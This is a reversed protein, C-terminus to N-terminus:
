LFFIGAMKMLNSMEFASSVTFQLKWILMMLCRPKPGRQLSHIEAKHTVEEEEKKTLPIGLCLIQWRPPPPPRYPSGSEGMIKRKGM